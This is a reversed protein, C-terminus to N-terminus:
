ALPVELCINGFGEHGKGLKRNDTAMVTKSKLDITIQTWTCIPLAATSSDAAIIRDTTWSVLAYYDIEIGPIGDSVSATAQMCYGDSGALLKGGHKYCELHTVSDFALETKDNLHDARWMGEASVSEDYINLQGLKDQALVHPATLCLVVLFAM